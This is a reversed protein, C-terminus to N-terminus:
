KNDKDLKAKADVRMWFRHTTLRKKDVAKRIYWMSSGMSLCRSADGMLSVDKSYVLRHNENFYLCGQPSEGYSLDEAITQEIEAPTVNEIDDALVFSAGTLVFTLSLILTLLKKM